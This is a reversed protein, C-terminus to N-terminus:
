VGLEFERVANITATHSAGNIATYIKWTTDGDVKYSTWAYVSNKVAEKTLRYTVHWTDIEATTPPMDSQNINFM